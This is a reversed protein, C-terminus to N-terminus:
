VMRGPTAKRDQCLASIASNMIVAVASIAATEARLVAPGLTVAQWGAEAACRREACTWGGEPGCLLAVEAPQALSGLPAGGPAEDLLLRVASQRSVARAFPEVGAIEPLRARRSQQSAEFAIRRWRETRKAAAKELGSDSRAAMVPVIRTVGLETVKEVMWEFRDFKFLAALLTVEIPPPASEVPELVRFVVRRKGVSEIEALYVNSNDCIEFLQGPAARLVRALHQANDGELEARSDTISHVFFRRRAM